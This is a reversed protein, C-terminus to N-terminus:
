KRHRAKRRSSNRSNENRDRCGKARKGDAAEMGARLEDDLVHAYKATTEIRAHNLGRQVLKLNGTARLLATAFTHRNDHWRFDEIGARAKRRRWQSKLGSLTVPYRAGRAQNPPGKAARRASYTFVWEAHHGRRSELIERMRETMPLRAPQDGKGAAVIMGSSFDVQRWRLLSERMRLGSALSFQRLAEYDPDLALSLAADEDARLERVREVPEKLRHQRWLPENPVEIRWVTRARTFIRQLVQTTSRNVTALAILQADRRNKVRHGRRWAILKAVDADTIDNLLRDPEFYRVLRELDRKLDAANKRHQGAETWYRDAAADLTLAGDQNRAFLSLRADARTIEAREVQEAERRTRSGTSGHFRHGGRRFDFHYFQSNKPRYVSM